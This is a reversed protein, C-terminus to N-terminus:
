QTAKTTGTGRYRRDAAANAARCEPCNEGKARHRLYAARTGCPKLERPGRTPSKLRPGAKWGNARWGTVTSSDAGVRAAITKIGCGREDLLRATHIKEAQTLKVREGNLAYEIAIYDLDNDADYTDTTSVYLRERASAGVRTGNM